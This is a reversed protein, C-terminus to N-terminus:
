VVRARLLDHMNLVGALLNREDVILLANIKNDQMIRLAEAALMDGRVTKCNKTMVSRMPTRMVDIGHDLARRLDGDTFIGLVRKQDDVVATMGMGKRTIEM